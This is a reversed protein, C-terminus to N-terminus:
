RVELSTDTRTMLPDLFFEIIRRKGTTIEAAVSMGPEVAIDMGKSTSHDKITVKMKYVLGRQEDLIADPSIETVVGKLYGYRQFSYADLKVVVPQGTRVFGIDKNALTAEVALEAQSPVIEAVTQGASVVGGVTKTALALV